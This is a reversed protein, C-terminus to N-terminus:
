RREVRRVVFYGILYGILAGAIVDSLFHVGLYVRSFAVLCAFIIWVYKFKPFERSLFPIASFAMMAQFSPFSFNWAYHSVKELGEMVSILGLQFPRQRQISIKLLFGIIIDLALTIWLPIIWGRKREKIFLLTLFVFIILLSSVFTIGMFFGDLLDIRLLSIYSIIKKDFYFVILLLFIIVANVLIFKKKESSKM